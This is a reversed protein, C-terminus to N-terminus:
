RVPLTSGPINETNTLALTSCTSSVWETLLLGPLIANVRVKAGQSKALCKMLHIAPHYLTLLWVAHNIIIIAYMRSELCCLALQKWKAHRGPFSGAILM